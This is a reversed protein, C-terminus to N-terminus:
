PTSIDRARRILWLNRFYIWLGLAQGTIFVPDRRHISYILLVVGGLISMHWFIHPVVSKKKKESAIWQFLFRLFFFFQGLFGIVLWRNPINFM